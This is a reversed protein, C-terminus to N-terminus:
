HASDCHIFATDEIHMLSPQSVLYSMPIMVFFGHNVRIVHDRVVSGIMCGMNNVYSQCAVKICHSCVDM